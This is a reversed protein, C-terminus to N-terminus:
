AKGQPFTGPTRRKHSILAIRTHWLDFAFDGFNIIKIEDIAVKGQELDFGEGIKVNGSFGEEILCHELLAAGYVIM